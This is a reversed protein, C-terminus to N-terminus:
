CTTWEVGRPNENDRRNRCLRVETYFRPAAHHDKSPQSWIRFGKIPPGYRRPTASRPKLETSAVQPHTDCFSKGPPGYRHREGRDARDQVTSQSDAAAIGPVTSLLLSAGLLLLVRKLPRLNTRKLKMM